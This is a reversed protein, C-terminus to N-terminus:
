AIIAQMEGVALKSPMINLSRRLCRLVVALCSRGYLVQSPFVRRLAIGPAVSRVRLDKESVVATERWGRDEEM